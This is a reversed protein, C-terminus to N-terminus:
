AMEQAMLDLVSRHNVEQLQYANAGNQKAAAKIEMVKADLFVDSACMAMVRCDLAENRRGSPCHFTGDSRKEEATLMSFFKEGYDVPFHCFGPRQPDIDQRQIKLNNYIHTKYYNTSIEYLISDENLKVGRYRKFNNPGAEDDNENKRRKLASFGKSPFTNQWTSAFRYVVDTLNGDGSDIFVTSIGFVRGDKRKFHFGGDRAWQTLKAWAGDHPDDVAGDFVWYMISWTTYGPGHGVVEMELRPPNNPDSESGRQVDIGATLWLVGDPITMAFYGGRLEIVKSIDPRSGSEKFPLGLYLNVFARMGDPKKLAQDYKKYLDAWSLMGVPSYLSSLHYSRFEKAHSKSTPEWRSAILMKTKHHNFIADHCNECIYHAGVIDGAMTEAKLGHQTRENGFELEQYKKCYPCPVMYKRQDGAEYLPFIISSEFTTPTSFDMIKKRAGFAFTRAYSVEIYSGEGTRLNLPAGDVEDRILIRKSDSRLGSASQASAMDLTGGAFEKVLVKDGTRRSQKNETQAYIKHRFGCSDILPELRKTAWKVLLGETASLYLIEAPCEDMWYAIVNEASATLGLQAGKMIVEHQIPSFPSMNDMIEIAYPTRNNSWFGPFPTNSPLIRRSEIYDSILAMPPSVPMKEIEADFFAVDWNRANNTKM